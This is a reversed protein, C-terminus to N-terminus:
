FRPPKPIEPAPKGLFVDYFIYKIFSWFSKCFKVFLEIMTTGKDNNEDDDAVVTTGEPATTGEAFAGFLVGFMSFSLTLVLVYAVVKKLTKNM